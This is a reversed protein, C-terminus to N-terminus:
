MPLSSDLVRTRAHETVALLMLVLAKQRASLDKMGANEYMGAETIAEEDPLQLCNLKDLKQMVDKFVFRADSKAVRFPHFPGIKLKKVTSAVPIPESATGIAGNDSKM